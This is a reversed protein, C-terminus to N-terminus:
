QRSAGHQLLRRLYPIERETAQAGREVLHPVLHLDRLGVPHDFEPIIPVLEAHHALNHFAYQARHLHNGVVSKLHLVHTLASHRREELTEEFGMAVIVDAGERIAIDVPLPDCLAGDVLERGELTWPPLVMPIAITARLGDFLAGKSLVVQEGSGYDTAVLHLPLKLDEFRRTGVFDRLTQNLIRDDILGFGGASRFVAPFLMRLLARVRIRGMAARWGAVFRDIAADTNGSISEGSAVWTGCFAGGSCAVVMDIPIGERHLVRVAGVAAVCKLAGAGIVLAVKPRPASPATTASM